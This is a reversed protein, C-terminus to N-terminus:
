GAAAAAAYGEITKRLAKTVPGTQAALENLHARHQRRESGRLVTDQEAAWTLTALAIERRDLNHAPTVALAANRAGTALQRVVRTDPITVATTTVMGLFTNRTLRIVRREALRDAVATLTSKPDKAVWHQWSRPRRSAAIRDLVADLVPDGSRGAGAVAKGNRDTLLGAWRLEVLAAARVLESRYYGIMKQKELHYAVLYARETLADPLHVTM